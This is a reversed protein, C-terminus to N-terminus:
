ILVLFIKKKELTNIKTKIFDKEKDSFFNVLSKVGFENDMFFVSGHFLSSFDSKNNYNIKINM